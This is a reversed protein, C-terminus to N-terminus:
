YINDPAIVKRTKRKVNNKPSKKRTIPKRKEQRRNISKNERGQRANIVERVGEKIANKLSSKKTVVKKAARVGAKMVRKGVTKLAKKGLPLITKKIIPAAIRFLGRFLGGIGHGRQAGGQRHIIGYGYGRQLPPAIYRRIGHGRQSKKVPKM